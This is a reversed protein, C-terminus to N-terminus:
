IEFTSNKMKRTIKMTIMMRAIDALRSTNQALAQPENASRHRRRAGLATPSGPSRRASATRPPTHSVGPLLIFDIRTGQKCLVEGFQKTIEPRVTTDAAGQALFVPAGAPAQGPTNREM